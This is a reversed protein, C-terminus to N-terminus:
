YSFLNDIANDKILNFEPIINDSYKEKSKKILKKKKIVFLIDDYRNKEKRLDITKFSVNDYIHSPISDILIDIWKIKQIDEVVMIGKDNLLPLYNKVFFKMSKLTHPGDDIIIDFNINKDIFNNKIFKKDYADQESFIKIRDKNLIEQNIKSNKIIDITYITSSTFYDYWLKISGGNRNDKHPEGIGIELINLKNDKIKHFLKEYSDIYSHTTNKDTKSNDILKVLKTM